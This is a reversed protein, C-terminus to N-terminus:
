LLQRNFRRSKIQIALGYEIASTKINDPILLNRYSAAIILRMM